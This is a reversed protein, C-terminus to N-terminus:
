SHEDDRDDDADDEENKVSATRASATVLRDPAAMSAVRAPASVTRKPRL